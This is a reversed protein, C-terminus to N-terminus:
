IKAMTSGIAHAAIENQLPEVAGRAGQVALPRAKGNRSSTIEEYFIPM